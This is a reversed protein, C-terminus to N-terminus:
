SKDIIGILQRNGVCRRHRFHRSRVNMSIEWVPRAYIRSLPFWGCTRRDRRRIFNWQSALSVLTNSSAAKTAKLLSLFRSMCVTAFRCQIFHASNCFRIKPAKLTFRSLNLDAIIFVDELWWDCLARCCCYCFTENILPEDAILLADFMTGTTARSLDILEGKSHKLETSSKGPKESKENEKEDVKAEPKNDVSDMDASTTVCSAVRASCLLRKWQRNLQHNM